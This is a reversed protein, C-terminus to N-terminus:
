THVTPKKLWPAEENNGLLSTVRLFSCELADVVATLQKCFNCFVSHDQASVRVFLLGAM